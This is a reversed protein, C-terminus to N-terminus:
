SLPGCTVYYGLRMMMSYTVKVLLKPLELIPIKKLIWFTLRLCQHWSLHLCTGITQGLLLTDVNMFRSTQLVAAPGADLVEQRLDSHSLAFFGFIRGLYILTRVLCNMVIQSRLFFCLMLPLLFRGWFNWNKKTAWLTEFDGLIDCKGVIKPRM